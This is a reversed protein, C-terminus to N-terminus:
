EAAKYNFVPKIIKEIEVTDAVLDIIEQAPKYAQPAEDITDKGVTTSYIGKMTQQFKELAIKQKAESRSMRRGAGHPASNNWDENGKGRGLIVGDRMNLPIIVPQDKYAAIAGKRIIDDDGIYNHVSEWCDKEDLRMGVCITHVIKERNLVAFQQCIRMDHMYDDKDKGELYCLDRPLKPKSAKLKAIESQIDQERGEAKCRQILETTDISQCHKIAKEQYIEAVQKGLNRSGTHVVLYKNNHEDEDIEIFHNGGGLSGLSCELRDIQKLEKKCYLQSILSKAREDFSAVDRGSPVRKRICKDLKDFDVKDTHLDVIRMGCGIDVGVINPIIKDRVSVTFGIVCGAGAHCDPMIRIPADEFVGTKVLEHLQQLAKQDINDTFVKVTNFEIM